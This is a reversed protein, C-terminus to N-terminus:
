IIKGGAAIIKDKVSRTMQVQKDVSFAKSIIKTSSLIKVGTKQLSALETKLLKSLLSLDLKDGNKLNKDLFGLSVTIPRTQFSNNRRKGRLFPLRKLWSKKIKTGDFTLKTKTRIKKGKAGKGTTHGGVGSGYGRGVRKRSKAVSKPLSSLSNM